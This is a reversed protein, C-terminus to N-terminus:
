SQNIEDSFMVSGDPLGKQDQKVYTVEIKRFNISFEDRPIAGWQDQFDAGRIKYSAIYADSLIVKYYELPNDGGAKAVVLTATKIKSNTALMSQLTPSSRDVLKTFKVDTYQRRQKGQGSAGDRAVSAGFEFTMVEIGHDKQERKMEGRVSEITLHYNTNSM